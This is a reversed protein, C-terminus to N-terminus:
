QSLLTCGSLPPWASVAVDLEPPSGPGSHICRAFRCGLCSLGTVDLTDHVELALLSREPRVSWADCPLSLFETTSMSEDIASACTSGEMSVRYHCLSTLVPLTSNRVLTPGQRSHKQGRTTLESTGDLKQQLKHNQRCPMAMVVRTASM